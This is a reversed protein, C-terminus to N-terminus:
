SIGHEKDYDRYRKLYRQRLVPDDWVGAEQMAKKREPNIYVENKGLNRTRGGTSFTPGGSPARNQRSQAQENHSENLGETFRHPLKKQVRDSLEEWYEATTPDMGAEAALASDIASVILSDEDRGGPRYWTHDQMWAQAHSLLRPDPQTPQEGSDRSPKQKSASSIQQKHRTLERLQDRLSDRINQAEVVEDGRQQSVAQAIVQDSLKLQRQVETIRQDLANMESHGLRSEVQSFRRELDENRQRLFQMEMQDRERAKRQREKRQKREERRAQRKEETEGEILHDDDDDEEDQGLRKEIPKPEPTTTPQLPQVEDEVPILEEEQLETAKNESSAM